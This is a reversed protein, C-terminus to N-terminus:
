LQRVKPLHYILQLFHLSMLLRETNLMTVYRLTIHHEKKKQINWNHNIKHNHNSSFKCKICETAAAERIFLYNNEKKVNEAEKTTTTTTTTEDKKHEEM